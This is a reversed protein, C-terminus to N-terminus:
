ETSKQETSPSSDGLGLRCICCAEGASTADMYVDGLEFSLSFGMDCFGDM